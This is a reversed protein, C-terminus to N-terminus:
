DIQEVLNNAGDIRSPPPPLVRRDAFSDALRDDAAGGPQDLAQPRGIIRMDKTVAADLGLDVLQQPIEAIVSRLMPARERVNVM